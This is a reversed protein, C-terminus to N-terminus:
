YDILAAGGRWGLGLPRCDAMEVRVGGGEGGETMGLALDVESTQFKGSNQVENTALIQIIDFIILFIHSVNEQQIGYGQKEM